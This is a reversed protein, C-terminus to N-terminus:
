TGVVLRQYYYCRADFMSYFRGERENTTRGVVDNEGRSRADMCGGGWKECYCFTSMMTSYVWSAHAFFSMVSACSTSVMITAMEPEFWAM